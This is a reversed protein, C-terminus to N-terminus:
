PPVDIAAEAVERGRTSTLPACPQFFRKMSCLLPAPMALARHARHSM